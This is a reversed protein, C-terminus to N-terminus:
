APMSGPWSARARPRRTARPATSRGPWFCARRHKKTELWHISSPRTARLRIRHRLRAPDDRRKRPGPISAVMAQQVDIPMSTSMGNVYIENTDLGEPELFIQHTLKDPFKVSRTRSRLATARASARSRAASYLPSRHLNERLIRHTEETTYAIHCSVDAAPSHAHHPLSLADPRRRGAAGRFQSWDITRADLRPPTGTKLRGCRFGLRKM